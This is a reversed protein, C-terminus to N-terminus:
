IVLHHHKYLHAAEPHFISLIDAAKRRLDSSTIESKDQLWGVLAECVADATAEAQGDPTRVSLCAALVSAHLKSRMFSETPRDGQRKVVLIAPKM